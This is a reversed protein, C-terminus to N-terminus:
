AVHREGGIRHEVVHEQDAAIEEVAEGGGGLGQAALADSRPKRRAIASLRPHLRPKPSATEPRKRIPPPINM